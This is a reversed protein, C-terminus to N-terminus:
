TMLHGIGDHAAARWYLGRIVQDCAFFSRQSYREALNEFLFACRRTGHAAECEAFVELHPAVYAHLGEASRGYHAGYHPHLWFSTELRDTPNRLIAVVTPRATAPYIMRLLFPPTYERADGPSLRGHAADLAALARPRCESWMLRSFFARRGHSKITEAKCPWYAAAWEHSFRGALNPNWIMGTMCEGVLLRGAPAPWDSLFSSGGGRRDFANGGDLENICRHQMAVDARGSLISDPQIGHAGDGTGVIEELFSHYAGTVHVLPFCGRGSLCANRPDTANIRVRLPITPEVRQIRLCMADDSACGDDAAMMVFIRENVASWVRLSAHQSQRKTSSPTVYTDSWVHGLRRIHSSLKRRQESSGICYTMKSTHAM